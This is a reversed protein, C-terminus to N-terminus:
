PMVAAATQGGDVHLTTGTLFPPAASALYVVVNAIEEPLGLRGLPNLRALDDNSAGALFEATMPTHIWGPAIANVTIAYRSLDVALSRALSAVAAKTASYAASSPESITGNISSFLIIRGGGADRMHRAAATSVLASGRLNVDLTRDWDNATLELTPTSECIAAANVVTRLSGLRSIAYKVLAECERPVAVDVVHTFVDTGPSLERIEQSVATLVSERRGGIVLSFGAEALAIAIARGIGTGGGTVVATRQDSVYADGNASKM